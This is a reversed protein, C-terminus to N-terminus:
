SYIKRYFFGPQTPMPLEGESGLMPVVSSMNLRDDPSQQVCLLAFHILRLVEQIYCSDQIIEGEILEISRGEQHLRWAENMFENIGQKSTESLCKVVIEQKDQLVGKFVPGLGGQGLKNSIAFHNTAETKRQHPYGRSQQQAERLTLFMRLGRIPLDKLAHQLHALLSDM